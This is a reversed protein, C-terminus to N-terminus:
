PAADKTEAIDEEFYARRAKAGNKFKPLKKRHRKVECTLCYPMHYSEFLFSLSKLFELM